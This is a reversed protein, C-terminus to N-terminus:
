PRVQDEANGGRHLQGAVAVRLAIAIPSMNGVGIARKGVGSVVHDIAVGTPHQLIENPSHRVQDEAVGGRHM